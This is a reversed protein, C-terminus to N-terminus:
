TFLLQTLIPIIMVGPLYKVNLTKDGILSSKQKLILLIHNKCKRRKIIECGVSLSTVIWGKSWASLSASGSSFEIFSPRLIVIGGKSWSTKLIGMEDHGASPCVRLTTVSCTGSVVWVLDAIDSFFLM